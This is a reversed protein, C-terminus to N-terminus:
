ALIRRFESGVRASNTSVRTSMRHYERTSSDAVSVLLSGAASPDHFHLFKPSLERLPSYFLLLYSYLSPHHCLVTLHVAGYM